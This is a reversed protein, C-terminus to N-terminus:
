HSKVGMHSREKESEKLKIKKGKQLGEAFNWIKKEQATRVKETRHHATMM